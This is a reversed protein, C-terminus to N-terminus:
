NIETGVFRDPNSVFDIISNQMLKSLGWCYTVLNGDTIIPAVELTDRVSFLGRRRIVRAPMANCSFLWPEALYVVALTDFPSFGSAGLTGEWFDLWAAARGGLWRDLGGNSKLSELDARTVMVQRGVEFPVLHIPIGSRLVIDIADPDKRVNLDHFHLIPTSGVKFVQGPRQGAVAVIAEIRHVLEPRKKLLMAINTLPGLALITTPHETLASELEALASTNASGERIPKTAGKYVAPVTRTPEHTEISTLLGRVVMTARDLSVNGFVTSLGVVNLRSSRIAAIIAWCDDVDNTKGLDCAPDADIWVNREAAAAVGVLLAYCVMILILRM